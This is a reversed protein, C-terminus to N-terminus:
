RLAGTPYITGELFTSSGSKLRVPAEVLTGRLPEILNGRSDFIIADSSDLELVFEPSLTRDIRFTSEPDIEGSTSYPPYDFGIQYGELTQKIIVRAREALSKSRAVNLDGRFQERIQAKRFSPSLKTISTIGIMMIVSFTMLVALSEYLTMGSEKSRKKNKM